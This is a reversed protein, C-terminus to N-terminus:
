DKEAFLQHWNRAKLHDSKHSWIKAKKQEVQLALLQWSAPASALTSRARRPRPSRNKGATNGARRAQASSAFEEQGMRSNGVATTVM